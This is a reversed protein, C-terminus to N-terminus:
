ILSLIIFSSGFGALGLFISCPLGPLMSNRELLKITIIFGVLIGIVTFLSILWFIWLGYDAMLNIGHTTIFYPTLPQSALMSYFVLDGIGVDWDNSSYTMSSLMSDIDNSENINYNFDIGQENLNPNKNLEYKNVTNKGSVLEEGSNFGSSHSEDMFDYNKSHSVKNSEMADIKSSISFFQYFKVVIQDLKNNVKGINSNTSTKIPKQNYSELEDELTYKVIDKIPGRRVSYIDYISLAVLLIVVTYTPLIVSLFAGMLASQCLIAYNKLRKKFKRSTIIYTMWFGILGCSIVMIPYFIDYNIFPQLNFIGINNNRFDLIFLSYFQSRILYLISDAFFYTIFTGAFFLAGGFFFKLTLKKRYKFLLAIGFGGVIAPIIFTLANILGASAADSGTGEESVITATIILDTLYICFVLFAAILIVIFIPSFFKLKEYITEVVRRM